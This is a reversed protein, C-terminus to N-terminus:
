VPVFIDVHGINIPNLNRAALASCPHCSKAELIRLRKIPLFKGMVYLVIERFIGTWNENSNSPELNSIRQYPYGGEAKEKDIHMCWSYEVLDIVNGHSKIEIEGSKESLSSWSVTNLSSIMLIEDPDIIPENILSNSNIEILFPKLPGLKAVTEAQADEAFAM